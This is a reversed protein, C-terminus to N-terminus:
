YHFEVDPPYAWPQGIIDYSSVQLSEHTDYKEANIQQIFCSLCSLLLLSRIRKRM